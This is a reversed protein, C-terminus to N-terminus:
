DDWISRKENSSVSVVTGFKRVAKALETVDLRDYFTKVENEEM